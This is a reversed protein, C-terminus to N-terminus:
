VEYVNYEVGEEWTESKELQEWEEPTVDKVRNAYANAKVAAENADKAAKEAAQTAKTAPELIEKEVQVNVGEIIENKQEETLADFQLKIDTYPVLVRWSSDDETTYKYEIGLNGRRMEPTKGEASIGLNEEGVYWFGDKVNPNIFATFVAKLLDVRAKAAVGNGLSLVVYDSDDLSQVTSFDKIDINNMVNEEAM